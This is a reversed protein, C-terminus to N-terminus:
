WGKPQLRLLPAKTHRDDPLSQMDAEALVLVERREPHGMSGQMGARPPAQGALWGRFQETLLPVRVMHKVGPPQGDGDVMIDAVAIVQEM